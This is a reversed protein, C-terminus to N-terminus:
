IGEILETWERKFKDPSHYAWFYDFALKSYKERENSVLLSKIFFEFFDEAVFNKIEKGINSGDGTPTIVIPCGCAMAELVTLSSGEFRSPFLLARAKNYEDCLVKNEVFGSNQINPSSVEINGYMRINFGKDALRKIVDVGKRYYNGVAVSLFNDVVVKGNPFFIDTNVSNNIVKDVKVGFEELQVRSAESVSVVYKDRASIKQLEAKTMKQKIEESSVLGQLSKAYGYYNGHFVNIARPHNVAFGFEGNCLVVGYREKKNIRNFYEGVEKEAEVPERGLSEVGYIDVRHGRDELNKKIDRDFVEVGGAAGIKSTVIAVKM